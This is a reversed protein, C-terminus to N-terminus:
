FSDFSGQFKRFRATTRCQDQGGVATALHGVVTPSACLPDELNLKKVTPCHLVLQKWQM